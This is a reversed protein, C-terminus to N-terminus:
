QTWRGELATSPKAISQFMGIRVEGTGKISLAPMLGLNIIKEAAELTLLAEACPKLEYEGSNKWVHMPLGAISQRQGPRMNWRSETFAEAILTVAAYMGNGWLYDSHVSGSPMEEFPFREIPSADKGYPMRALIRPLTLGVRRAEPMSRLEDWVANGDQWSSPENLAEPDKIGLIGLEAAALIPVDAHDALMATRALLEVDDIWPRFYTDCGLVAWPEGKVPSQALIQFLGTRRLDSAEALDALLEAKSVDLLYIKLHTGTEVARVLRDLSMWAAEVGQFLPHHLIERMQVGVERDLQELLEKQAPDEGPTLHPKVLEHVYALLPDAPKAGRAPAAAAESQEAIQDLLSGTIISSSAQPPPATERALGGLIEDVARKLSEPSELKQRMERLAQFLACSDYIRDPHFDELTRIPLRVEADGRDGLPLRIETGIRKPLMEIEDRDVPIPARGLVPALIGRSV